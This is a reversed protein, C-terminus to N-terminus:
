DGDKVKKGISWAKAVHEGVTWYSNDPMTLVIPDIKSVDPSAGTMFREETYAAVIEGIFLTNSPLDVAQALRCEMNLPCDMIMPASQLKGYFVEFLRSKDTTRGSVIGCYDTREVMSKSPINISFEGTEEIGKITHHAKNICVAIMPPTRNVRSTWGVTMFNVKSEVMTGVLVVPMPYLYVNTGIDIKAM